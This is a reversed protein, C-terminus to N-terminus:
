LFSMEVASRRLLNNVNTIFCTRCRLEFREQRRAKAVSGGVMTVKGTARAPQERRESRHGKRRNNQRRPWCPM